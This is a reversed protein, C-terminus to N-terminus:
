EPLTITLPRWRDSSRSRRAACRTATAAGTVRTELWRDAYHRAAPALLGVLYHALNEIDADGEVYQGRQDHQGCRQHPAQGQLRAVAQGNYDYHQGAARPIENQGAFGGLHCMTCLTEDAKAKGLRAKAPDPKFNQPKPKQRRSTIPWSAAFEDRSLGAVDAVDAPRQPSGEQFDRLQLYLYRATQGALIPNTTITSNGGEGHCAVCVAARAPAAQALACPAARPPPWRSPWHHSIEHPDTRPIRDHFLGAAAHQRPRACCDLPSRCHSCSCRTAASSTSSPTAGRRWQSTSSANVTYSVAPANLRRRVPVGVARATKADFARFYRQGRRQVGPRRRHGARRRDAATPTSKWAIKGTDIDVAALRGWQKEARRHDQLRRGAVAQRGPVQGAEVHYTM